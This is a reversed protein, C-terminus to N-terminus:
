GYPADTVAGALKDALVCGGAYRFVNDPQLLLQESEHVNPPLLDVHRTRSYNWLEPSHDRLDTKSRGDGHRFVNAVLFMEILTHGLRRGMLDVQAEHACEILLPRFKLTQALGRLRENHCGAAWIRLQREFLAALLLTYGKAAENATYNDTM